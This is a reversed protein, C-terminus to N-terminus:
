KDQGGRMGTELVLRELWQKLMTEEVDLTDM